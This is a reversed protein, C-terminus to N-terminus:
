KKDNLNTFKRRKVLTPGKEPTLFYYEPSYVEDLFPM